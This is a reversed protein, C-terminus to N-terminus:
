RRWEERCFHCAHSISENRWEDMEKGREGIDRKAGYSIVHKRSDAGDPGAIPKSM